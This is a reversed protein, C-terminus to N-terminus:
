PGSGQLKSRPPPTHHPFGEEASFADGIRHASSIDGASTQVIFFSTWKMSDEEEFIPMNMRNLTAHCAQGRGGPQM